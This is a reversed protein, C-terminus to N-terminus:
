VILPNVIGSHHFTSIMGALAANNGRSFTIQKRFVNKLFFIIELFISCPSILPTIFLYYCTQHQCVQFCKHMNRQEGLGGTEWRIPYWAWTTNLSCFLLVASFRITGASRLILGTVGWALVMPIYTTTVFPVKLTLTLYVSACFCSFSPCIYDILIFWFIWILLFSCNSNWHKVIHSM